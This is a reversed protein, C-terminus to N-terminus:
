GWIATRVRIPGPGLTLDNFAGAIADIQDDHKARKGAVLEDLLDKNWVAKIIKVNGYHENTAPRAYAALPKWRSTKEGTAPTGAFDYGILMKKHSAIVAKGASGGEQEERVRVETGDLAATQKMLADVQSSALQGRQIDLIYVLNSRSKGLLAGATFDGGGETGAADWFRCCETLDGPVEDVIEFWSREFMGGTEPLPNQQHQASYDVPGLERKVQENEKTGLRESCLLEGEETRPDSWGTPGVWTTPVYETPLNLHVYDGSEILVAALDEEHGRQMIVIKRGTRPNNLRTSWIKFFWRKDGERVDKSEINKLNHPDDAILIDGGRGTAGGGVSTSIRYGRQMNEYYSKVNQDGMLHLPWRAQYWPSEIVRRSTTAHELALDLAYSGYLFRTTPRKIWAFTPLAVSTCISKSFRPCITILLNRIHGELVAEEHECIAEIHFGNVFPTEPEIVPWMNQIYAHLSRSNVEADLAILDQAIEVRDRPTAALM